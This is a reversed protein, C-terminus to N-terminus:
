ARAVGRWFMCISADARRSRSGPRWISSSSASTPREARASVREPAKESPM